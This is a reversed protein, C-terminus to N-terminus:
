HLIAKVFNQLALDLLVNTIQLTSETLVVASPNHFVVNVLCLVLKTKALSLNELM